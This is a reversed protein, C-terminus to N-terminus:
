VKEPIYILHRIYHREHYLDGCPFCQEYKEIRTTIRNEKGYSCDFKSEFYGESM